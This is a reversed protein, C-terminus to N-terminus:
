RHIVASDNINLIYFTLANELCALSCKCNNELNRPQIKLFNENSSHYTEYLSLNRFHLSFKERTLTIIFCSDSM